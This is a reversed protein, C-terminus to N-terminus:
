KTSEKISKLSKRIIRALIVNNVRPYMSYSRYDYIIIIVIPESM